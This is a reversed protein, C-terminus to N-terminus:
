VPRPSNRTLGFRFRAAFASANQHRRDVQGDRFQPEDHVREVRVVLLTQPAGRAL